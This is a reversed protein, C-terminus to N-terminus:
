RTRRQSSLPATRRLGYVIFSIWIAFGLLTGPLNWPELGIGVHDAGVPAFTTVILFGTGFCVFMGAAVGGILYLSAILSERRNVLDLIWIVAILTGTIALGTWEVRYLFWAFLVYVVARLIPVTLGGRVTGGSKAIRPPETGDPRMLKEAARERTRRTLKEVFTESRSPWNKPTSLVDREPFPGHLAEDEAIGKAIWAEIEPPYKIYKTGDPKSM